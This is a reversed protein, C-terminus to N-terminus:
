RLDLNFLFISTKKKIGGFNSLINSRSVITSDMLECGSIINNGNENSLGVFFGINQTPIEHDIIMKCKEMKLNKITGGNLKRILGFNEFSNQKENLYM